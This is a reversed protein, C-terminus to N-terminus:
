EPLEDGGTNRLALGRYWTGNSTYREFGKETLAEGVKRQSPVASGKAEGSAECWHCFAAYLESARVCYAAGGTVCCEGVFGGLLDQESRYAATAQQVEDPEGLGERQWDLCGCVAWALIGAVEAKLRDPLAKDKEGDGITVTFPVLKIRRWVAHDTGRVAPKHNAALVIKHTPGFEFFDQRMRRARIKDGGTMQKMLAEAMRKGAETEITVVLHKGFLDARETPHSENSKVLLLDSVAQMGYDGLLALLTTLFTSKGNAGTGYFFWLCQESVDGTLWYGVVRQLYTLLRQNQDMIRGLFGLWLPCQARHDYVVPALKTILDERRHERLKGTRLDLTGNRCNFLWPDRDLDAPLVPVGPESRALVIMDHLRRASESKVAWEGLATRSAGDSAAALAYLHRPVDKAWREVQGTIDVAWHTGAWTLFQRWPYCYRLDRGHLAVLRKGNGTDTFKDDGSVHEGAGNASTLPVTVEPLGGLTHDGPYGDAEARGQLAALAADRIPDNTV